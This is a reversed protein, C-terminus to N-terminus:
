PLSKGNSPLSVSAHKDLLELTLSTSFAAAHVEM